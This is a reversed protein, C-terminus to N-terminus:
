SLVYLVYDLISYKSPIKAYLSLNCLSHLGEDKAYAYPIMEIEDSSCLNRLFQSSM